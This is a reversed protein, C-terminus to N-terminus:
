GGIRPSLTSKILRMAQQKTFGERIFSSYMVWLVHAMNKLQEDDIRMMEENVLKEIDMNNM